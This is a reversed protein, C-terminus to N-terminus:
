QNGNLMDLSALSSTISGQTLSLMRLAQDAANFQAYLLAERAELRLEYAGISQQISRISNNLGDMANKIPNGLSDTLGKLADGLNALMGGVREEGTTETGLFFAAVGNFDKALADKLKAEDLRLSGDREFSIGLQGMTRITNPDQLQDISIGRTVTSQLTSQVGRLTPDGSLVGASGRETNYTFQSSIFSSVSNYASIVEQIDSVIGDNDVAIDLRVIQGPAASKLSINVGEIADAVTNSGSTAEVGNIEFMADRAAQVTTFILRPEDPSPVAPPYNLEFKSDEGTEKSTIMLKFGDNGTNIVSATVAADLGNIQQQLEKLTTGDGFEVTKGRITFSGSGVKADASEFGNSVTTQAQALGIVNVSYSGIGSVGSATATLVNENSSTATGRTFASDAMRENFSTPSILPASNGGYLMTNVRDALASLRTNLTQYATIKGQISAVQNELRTVPERELLMLQKVISAVDLGGGIVDVSGM